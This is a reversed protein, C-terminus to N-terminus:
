EARTLVTGPAPEVQLPLVDALQRPGKVTRVAASVSELVFKGWNQIHLEMNTTSKARNGRTTATLQIDPVGYLSLDTPSAEGVLVEMNPRLVMTMDTDGGATLTADMDFRKFFSIPEETGLLRSLAANVRETEVHVTLKNGSRTINEPGVVASFGTLLGDAMRKAAEGGSRETTALVNKYLTQAMDAKEGTYTPFDARRWGAESGELLDLLPCNYAAVGANLDLILEAKGATLLTKLEDFTFPAYEEIEEAEVPLLALLQSLDFTFTVDVVGDQYVGDMKATLTHEEDGDLSNFRTFTLELTQTERKPTPSFLGDEASEGAMELLAQYGALAETAESRFATPDWLCVQQDWGWWGYDYWDYDYWDGYGDDYWVVDWGANEAAERIPVPGDYGAAVADAGLIARLAAADAYTTWDNAAIPIDSRVGNVVLTLTSQRHWDYEWDTPDYRGYTDICDEFMVDVFEEETLINKQALYEEKDMYSWEGQFFREADFAAWDEPYEEKYERAWDQSNLVGVRRLIYEYRVVVAADAVDDLYQDALFAEMATQDEYGWGAILADVDLNAIEEPHDQAYQEYPDVYEYDEFYSLDYSTNEQTLDGEKYMEYLFDQVEQSEDAISKLEPAEGAPYTDVPQGDVYFAGTEEMLDLFAQIEEQPVEYPEDPDLLRPQAMAPVALGLALVVTLALALTKRM